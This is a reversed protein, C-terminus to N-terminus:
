RVGREALYQEFTLTPDQMQLLQFEQQYRQLRNGAVSQTYPDAGQMQVGLAYMIARMQDDNSYAGGENVDMNMAPDLGRRGIANYDLYNYQGNEAPTYLGQMLEQFGALADTQQAMDGGLGVNDLGGGMIRQVIGMIQADDSLSEALPTNLLGQSQLLARSALDAGKEDFINFNGIQDQSYNEFFYDGPFNQAMGGMQTPDMGPGTGGPQPGPAPVNGPQGPGPAPNPAPNTSPARSAANMGEQARDLAAEWGSRQARVRSGNGRDRVPEGTLPNTGTAAMTAAADTTPGPAMNAPMYGPNIQRVLGIRSDLIARADRRDQESAGPNNVINILFQVTERTKPDTPDSTIDKDYAAVNGAPM